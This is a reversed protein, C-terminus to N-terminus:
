GACAKALSTKGTGSPGYFIVGRRMRAGLDNFKKPDKM